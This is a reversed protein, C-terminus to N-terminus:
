HTFSEQASQSFLIVLDASFLHGSQLRKYYNVWVEIDFSFHEDPTEKSFSSQKPFHM